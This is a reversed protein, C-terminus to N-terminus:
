FFDKGVSYGASQPSTTSSMHPGLLTRLPPSNVSLDEMNNSSGSNELTESGTGGTGTGSSGFGSGDPTDNTSGNTDNSPTILLSPLVSTIISRGQQRPAPM